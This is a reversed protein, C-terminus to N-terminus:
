AGEREMIEKAKKWSDSGYSLYDYGLNRGEFEFEKLGGDWICWFFKYIHIPLFLISYLFIGIKIRRIYDGGDAEELSYKCFPHIWKAGHNYVGIYNWDALSIKKKM